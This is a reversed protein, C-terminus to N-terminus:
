GGVAEAQNGTETMKNYLDDGLESQDIAQKASSIFGSIDANGVGGQAFDAIASDAKAQASGAYGTNYNQKSMDPFLKDLDPGKAKGTLEALKQQAEELDKLYGDRLEGSATKWKQTLEQVLKEQAMISDDAFQIDQKTSGSGGKGGNGM